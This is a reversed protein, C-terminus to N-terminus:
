VEIGLEKLENPYMLHMVKSCNILKIQVNRLGNIYKFMEAWSTWLSADIVMTRFSNRNIM